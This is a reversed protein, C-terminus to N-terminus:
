RALDSLNSRFVKLIESKPERLLKDFEGEEEVAGKNLLVATHCLRTAEIPDHSILVMHNTLGRRAASKECQAYEAESLRTGLSRVRLQKPPAENMTADKYAVKELNTGVRTRRTRRGDSQRVVGLM